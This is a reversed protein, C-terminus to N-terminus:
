KAATVTIEYDKASFIYYLGFTPMNELQPDSVEYIDDVM